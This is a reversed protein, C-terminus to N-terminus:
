FFKLGPVLLKVTVAFNCCLFFQINGLWALQLKGINTEKIQRGFVETHVHSSCYIYLESAFMASKDTNSM